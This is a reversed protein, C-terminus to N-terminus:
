FRLVQHEEIGWALSSRDRIVEIGEMELDGRLGALAADGVVREGFRRGGDAGAPEDGGEGEGEDEGGDASVGGEAKEEVLALPLEEEMGAVGDGGGGSGGAQRELLNVEVDGGGALGAEVAPPDGGGGAGAIGGVGDEIEVVRAASEGVGNGGEAFEVGEAEVDEGDVVLSEAVADAAMGGFAEGGGVGVAAQVQSVSMRWM